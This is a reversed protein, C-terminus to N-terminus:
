RLGRPIVYKLILTEGAFCLQHVDVQNFVGTSSRYYACRVGAEPQVGRESPPDAMEYRPLVGALEARSQGTRLEAFPGPKLVSNATIFLYVALVGLVLVIGAGVPIFVAALLGRWVRRQATALQSASESREPPDAQPAVSRSRHPLRAAVRFGRQHPGADLSGGLLRVRERLGLLGRQGSALGTGPQRPQENVVTVATEDDGHEIRVTVLAGPAHKTANTLAEQVVRYLARDVMPPLTAAGTSMLEIAMGSARAREVLEGVQEGVPELPVPDTEDRLVGIIDRLSETAATATARLEGAATRQREGLDPAIELAGARLAILSLEHGLSDHMDQAIRARERLRARDALIRQQSELQEARRWGASVLDQYLRWCRGVLVPFIVAFLLVYVGTFLEGVPQTALTLALAGLTVAGALWLLPPPGRHPRRGALFSLATLPFVFYLLWATGLLALALGLAPSIRSVFVAVGALLVIGAVIPWFWPSTRPLQLGGVTILSFALWLSLDLLLTSRTWRSRM